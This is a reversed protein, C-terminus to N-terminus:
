PPNTFLVSSVDSIVTKDERKELDYFRVSVPANGNDDPTEDQSLFVVKGKVGVVAPFRGAKFHPTYIKNFAGWEDMDALYVVAKFVHAFGLGCEKLVGEINQMMQRSEAEIGGPVLRATLRGGAGRLKLGTAVPM